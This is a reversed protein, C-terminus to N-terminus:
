WSIKIQTPYTNGDKSSVFLVISAGDVKATSLASTAESATDYLVDLRFHGPPAGVSTGMDARPIPDHGNARGSGVTPKPHATNKHNVEWKVSGGGGFQGYAM